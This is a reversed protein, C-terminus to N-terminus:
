RRDPNKPDSEHPSLLTPVEIVVTTGEGPASTFTISGGIANAREQMSRLGFGVPAPTGGSPPDTVFGCGDDQLLARLNRGHRRITLVAQQAQSHRVINSLSEQLLRYFHIESEPALLGDLDGIDATFRVPSSGALGHTMATIARTLGMADLQFPRLAQAISRVERLALTAMETVHGIQESVHTSDGPRSLAMEARNKIVLLNQGLSDHLEAALRKREQEQSEILRRSFEEQALQARTITRIRTRYTGICAGVLLLSIAGRFPWSQWWAPLIRFRLRAGRQDWVGDHNAAMVEFTYRGPSLRHYAAVRRTAAMEWNSDVGELRHRFRVREPATLSLGSYRIELRQRGAPIVIEVQDLVDASPGVGAPGNSVTPVGDVSVEEIITTPPVPYPRLRSPDVMSVGKLTAFWLRQRDDRCTVPQINASCEATGLGDERAFRRPLLDTSRGDMWGNLGARDVRYIGDGSGIWLYGGADETLSSPWRSLGLKEPDLHTFQGHRLRYYGSGATGIWLSHESDLLLTSVTLSDPSGPIHVRRWVGGERCVLGGGDLGLWLRSNRDLAMARVPSDAVEPPLAAQVLHDGIVQWLGNDRGIWMKRQPEEFFLRVTRRDVPSNTEITTVQDGQCIFIGGGYTGVWLRGQSDCQLCWSAGLQYRVQPAAKSGPVFSEIGAQTAVWLTGAPDQAVSRVIEGALGAAADVTQFVRPTLRSLGSAEHGIWLSGESDCFLARVAEPRAGRGIRYRHFRNDPDLRWLGQTWTGFWFNGSADLAAVTCDEVGEPTPVTRQWRHDQWLYAAHDAVVWLAGTATRAVLQVRTNAPESTPLLPLIKAQDIQRWVGEDRYWPSGDTDVSVEDFSRIRIGTKREVPVFQGAATEAFVIRPDLADVQQQGDPSEGKLRFPLNPLGHTGNARTVRGKEVWLIGGDKMGVALRGRQNRHLATVTSDGNMAPTNGSDFVTFRAGDFRVLGRYTSFWLYGDPTQVIKTVSNQPLGDEVTFTRAVHDDALEELQVAWGRDARILLLFM